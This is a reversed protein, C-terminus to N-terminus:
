EYSLYFLYISPYFIANPFAYPQSVCNRIESRAKNSRPRGNRFHTAVSTGADRHRRSAALSRVARAVNNYRSSKGNAGGFSKGKERAKLLRRALGAKGETEMRLERFGKLVVRGPRRCRASLNIM